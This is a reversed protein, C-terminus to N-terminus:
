KQYLQVSNSNFTGHSSQLMTIQFLYCTIEWVMNIECLIKQALVEKWFSKVLRTMSCPNRDPVFYFAKKKDRQIQKM